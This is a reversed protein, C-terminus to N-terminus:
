IKALQAKNDVFSFYNLYGQLIVRYRIILDKLPLPLLPRISRFHWKGDKTQLFGKDELRKVLHAIPATM